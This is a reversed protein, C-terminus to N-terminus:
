LTVIHPLQFLMHRVESVTSIFNFMIQVEEDRNLDKEDCGPPSHFMMHDVVQLILARIEVIATRSLRQGETKVAGGAPRPPEIWYYAKIAHMLEAITATRQVISIYNANSVFENAM